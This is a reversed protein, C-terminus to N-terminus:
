WIDLLNMLKLFILESGSCALLALSQFVVVVVVVVVVVIIIIIIIINEM